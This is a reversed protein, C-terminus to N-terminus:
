GLMKLLADAVDDVPTCSNKDSAETHRAVRDVQQVAVINQDARHAAFHSVSHGCNGATAVKDDGLAGFCATM